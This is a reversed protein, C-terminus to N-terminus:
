RPRLLGQAGCGGVCVRGVRADTEKRRRVVRPRGPPRLVCETMVRVDGLKFEREGGKAAWPLPGLLEGTISSRRSPSRRLVRPRGDADQVVRPTASGAASAPSVPTPELKPPAHGVQSRMVLAAAAAGLAAGVLGSVWSSSPASVAGPSASPPSFAM